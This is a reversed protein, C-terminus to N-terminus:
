SPFVTSLLEAIVTMSDLAKARNESLYPKLAAFLGNRRDDKFNLKLRPIAGEPASVPEEAATPPVQPSQNANAIASIQAMLSPNNMISQIVAALDPTDNKDM